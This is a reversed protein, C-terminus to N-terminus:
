TSSGVQPLSRQAESMLEDYQPPLHAATDPERITITQKEDLHISPKRCNDRGFILDPCLLSGLRRSPRTRNHPRPALSSLRRLPYLAMYSLLMHRLHREGFVVVHDLCERRISGIHREAYGNQWPSRHQVIAFASPVFGGFLCIAM